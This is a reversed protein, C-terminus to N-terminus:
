IYLDFTLMLYALFIEFTDPTKDTATGAHLTTVTLFAACALRQALTGDVHIRLPCARLHTSPMWETVAMTRGEDM